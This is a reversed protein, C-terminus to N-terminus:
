SIGDGAVARRHRTASRWQALVLGSLAVAGAAAMTRNSYHRQRSRVEQGCIDQLRPRRSLYRAHLDHCESALLQVVLHMDARAPRDDTDSSHRELEQQLMHRDHLAGLVDQSKRLYKIAPLHGNAGTEQAIELAYRLQRLAMRAAHVRNPFYVGTAHAIAEDAERAREIITRRLTLRWAPSRGWRWHRSAWLRPLEDIVDDIDFRELRKILRRVLEERRTQHHAALAALSPAIPGLRRQIDAILELHVDADRARGLARRIKTVRNLREDIDAGSRRDTTLPILERLRRTAVRADHISQTDGEFVSNLHQRLNHLERELLTYPTVM